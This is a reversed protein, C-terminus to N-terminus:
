DSSIHFEPGADELVAEGPFARMAFDSGEYHLYNLETDVIYNNVVQYFCHAFTHINCFYIDRVQFLSSIELRITSM